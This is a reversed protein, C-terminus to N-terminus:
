WRETERNGNKNKIRGKERKRNFRIVNLEREIQQKRMYCKCHKKEELLQKEKKEWTKHTEQLADHLSTFSESVNVAGEKVRDFAQKVSDGTEMIRRIIEKLVEAAKNSDPYLDVLEHSLEYFEKGSMLIWEVVLDSVIFDKSEIRKIDDVRIEEGTEVNKIIIGKVNENVKM